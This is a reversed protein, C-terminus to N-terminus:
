DEEYMIILYSWIRFYRGVFYYGVLRCLGVLDHRVLDLERHFRVLGLRNFLVNHVIFLNLLM